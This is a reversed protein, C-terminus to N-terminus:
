VLQTSPRHRRRWRRSRRREVGDSENGDEGRGDLGLQLFDPLHALSSQRKLQGPRPPGGRNLVSPRSAEFAAKEAKSRQLARKAHQLLLENAEDNLASLYMEVSSTTRTAVQMVNKAKRWSASHDKARAESTGEAVRTAKKLDGVDELKVVVPASRKRAELLADLEKLALEEQGELGHSAERLEKSSKKGAHRLINDRRERALARQRRQVAYSM